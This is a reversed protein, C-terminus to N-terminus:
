GAWQLQMGPGRFWIGIMMLTTFVALLLTFLGQLAENRNARFVRRLAFYWSGCLLVAVTFPLAGNRVLDAPAAGSTRLLRDDVWVATATLALGAIASALALRRGRHSVFWIGAANTDYKLFPIAVLGALVLLPAILVAFVPHLHLLIEQVGMFYWPAKTPNPSLGPNAQAALPADFAMAVALLLAVVTLALAAERTVLHPVTPVMAPPGKPVEGPKRLPVIGSAKRIRWFHFSVLFLLAVPLVATHLAYFNLLTAQGPEAGGLVWRKLEPGILPLYDLTSTSITVAWYSIQDWPLLYGTFNSLTVLGLLVLGVLWNARRPPLFASTYFVRLFHLFAVLLLGYGSWRHLNRLLSGFPVQEDLATISGYAGTLSPEYVFKLLFGSLFLVIVMVLASGGLGWSLTFRVSREPVSSPRFHLLFNRLYRRDDAPRPHERAGKAPMTQKNNL